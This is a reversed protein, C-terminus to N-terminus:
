SGMWSNQGGRLAVRATAPKAAQFQVRADCQVGLIIQQLEIVKDHIVSADRVDKISKAVDAAGKLGSIVGAITAVDIM